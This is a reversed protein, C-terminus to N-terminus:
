VTGHRLPSNPGCRICTQPRGAVPGPYAGRPRSPRIPSGPGAPAGRELHAM